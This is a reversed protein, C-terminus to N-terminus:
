SKLGEMVAWVERCTRGCWPEAARDSWRHDGSCSPACTLAHFLAFTM